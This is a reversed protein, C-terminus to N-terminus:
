YIGTTTIIAPFIKGWKEKLLRQNPRVQSSWEKSHGDQPGRRGHTAPGSVIYVSLGKHQVQLCFDVGYCHWDRFLKDDFWIGNKRNVIICCEDLTAAKHPGCYNRGWHMGRDFGMGVIGLAGWDKLRCEQRIFDRFWEKKFVMDEHACIVIDNKAKKVGYNLAKAISAWSKNHENDLKIFEVEEPLYSLLNRQLVGSPWYRITLVTIQSLKLPKHVPPGLEKLSLVIREFNDPYDRMLKNANQWAIDFTQGDKKLWLNDRLHTKKEPTAKFKVKM